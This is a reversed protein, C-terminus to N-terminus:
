QGYLVGSDRTQIPSPVPIDFILRNERIQGNQEIFGEDM